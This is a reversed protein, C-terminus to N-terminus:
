RHPTLIRWAMFAAGVLFVIIIPSVLYASALDVGLQFQNYINEFSLNDM